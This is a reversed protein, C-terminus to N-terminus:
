LTREYCEELVARGAWDSNAKEETKEFGFSQYLHAATTLDRITWLLLSTYGAEQAFAIADSVLRRGLGQGRTEPALLFWRLQAQQESAAVVAISGVIRGDEGEVVWLRERAANYHRAFQALGEAVYGEFRYDLSYERSYLLGHLLLVAGLDGPRLDSRVLFTM